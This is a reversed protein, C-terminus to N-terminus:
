FPRVSEPMMSTTTHTYDFFWHPMTRRRKRRRRLLVSYSTCYM